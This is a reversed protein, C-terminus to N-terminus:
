GCRRWVVAMGCGRRGTIAAGCSWRARGDRCLCARPWVGLEPLLSGPASNVGGPLVWIVGIHMDGCGASMAEAAACLRPVARESRRPDIVCPSPGAIRAHGTLLQQGPPDAAAKPLGGPYSPVMASTGKIAPFNTRTVPPVPPMPLAVAMPRAASPARTPMVPRSRARASAAAAPMRAAGPLGATSAKAASM